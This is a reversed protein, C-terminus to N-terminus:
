KMDLSKAVSIKYELAKALVQDENITLLKRDRMVVNGGIVVTRVDSGKLAYALAAYIDYIPVANPKDLDILILDAKKGPELSGIEKELHIARAGEITAMEVVAKANMALPDMKSIKALKATLDMEEMLDLDNNSGAPGDTGLGVAIGAARMEAVPSVGSALMM